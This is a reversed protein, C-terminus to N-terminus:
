LVIVDEIHSPIDADGIHTLDKDIEAAVKERANSPLAKRLEGLITPPAVLVLRDFSKNEAYNGLMQALQGAFREELARHPDQKPEVAHRTYGVSEHVRGLKDRGQLHSPPNDLSTESGAVLHVGKGRGVAELIRARGGDAVLVWTRTPKM